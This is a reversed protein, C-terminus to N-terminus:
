PTPGSCDVTQSAADAREIQLGHDTRFAMMTPTADPMDSDVAECTGREWYEPDITFEGGDVQRYRANVLDDLEAQTINAPVEVVEMYEVRTLASLRVEVLKTAPPAEIPMSVNGQPDDEYITADEIHSAPIATWQEAAIEPFQKRGGAISAFAEFSALEDPWSAALPQFVMRDKAGEVTGQTQRSKAASLRDEAVQLRQRNILVAAGNGSREAREVADREAQCAIQLASIRDEDSITVNGQVNRDRLVGKIYEASGELWLGPEAERDIVEVNFGEGLTDMVLAEVAAKAQAEDGAFCQALVGRDTGIAAVLFSANTRTENARPESYNSVNGQAERQSSAQKVSDFGRKFAATLLPYHALKEPAKLDFDWAEKGAEYAWSDAEVPDTGVVDIAADVHLAIKHECAKRLHAQIGHELAAFLEAEAKELAEVDDEDADDGGAEAWAVARNAAAFNDILAQANPEISDSVERERPLVHEDDSLMVGRSRALAHVCHEYSRSYTGLDRRSPIYFGAVSQDFIPRESPALSGLYEATTLSKMNM